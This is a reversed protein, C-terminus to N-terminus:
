DKAINIAKQYANYERQRIVKYVGPKLRIETHEKTFDKTDIKLHKLLSETKVNIYHTIIENQNQSSEVKFTEVDGEVFHGHNRSEGKILLESPNNTPQVSEKIGAPLDSVKELFVDGQRFQEMTKNKFVSLQQSINIICM